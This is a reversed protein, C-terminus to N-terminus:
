TKQLSRGAAMAALTVLDLPGTDSAAMAVDKRVFANAGADYAARDIGAGESGTLVVIGANCGNARIRRTAEIGDSCPMLVDMLIVDPELHAALEVAEDGTGAFGVVEFLPSEDAMAAVWACFGPDDDAVLLRIQETPM